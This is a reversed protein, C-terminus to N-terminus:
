RIMQQIRMDCIKKKFLAKMKIADEIRSFHGYCRLCTFKSSFSIHPRVCAYYVSCVTRM